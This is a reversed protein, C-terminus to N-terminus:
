IKPWKSYKPLGRVSVGGPLVGHEAITVIHHIHNYSKNITCKAPNKVTNKAVIKATNATHMAQTVITMVALSSLGGSPPRGSYRQSTSLLTNLYLTQHIGKVRSVRRSPLPTLQKSKVRITAWHM